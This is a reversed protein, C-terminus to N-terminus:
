SKFKSKRFADSVEDVAEAVSTLVTSLGGLTIVIRGENVAVLEEEPIDIQVYVNDSTLTHSFPKYQTPDVNVSELKFLLAAIKKAM